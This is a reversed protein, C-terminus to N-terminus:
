RCRLRRRRARGMVSRGFRGELSAYCGAHQGAGVAASAGEEQQDHDRDQRAHDTGPQHPPLDDILLAQGQHGEVLESLHLGDRGLAALDAVRVAHQQRGRDVQL